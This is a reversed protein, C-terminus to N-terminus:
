GRQGFTYEIYSDVEKSILPYLIRWKVKEQDTLAVPARTNVGSSAKWWLSTVDTRNIVESGKILGVHKVQKLVKDVVTTSM